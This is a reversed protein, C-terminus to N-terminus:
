CVESKLTFKCRYSKGENQWINGLATFNNNITFEREWEILDKETKTKMVLVKVQLPALKDKYLKQTQENIKKKKM